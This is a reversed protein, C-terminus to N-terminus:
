SPLGSMVPFSIQVIDYQRICPATRPRTDNQDQVFCYRLHWSKM